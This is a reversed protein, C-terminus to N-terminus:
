RVAEQALAGALAATVAATVAATLAANLQPTHPALAHVIREFVCDASGSADVSVIPGCESHAAQWAPTVFEEFAQGVRSHFDDGLQEMYDHSSRKGARALGENNPLHLVITVTPVLGGAALQNAARVRDSPLGRGHIQYAYTSLFFRDLVVVEDAALTPQIRETVLQARSAMFLLAEASPAITRFPELLVNRIAEGLSTGGPERLHACRVGCHQLVDVLRRAQTTKGVGESGEFVILAGQTM